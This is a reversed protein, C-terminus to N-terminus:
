YRKELRKSNTRDSIRPSMIYTNNSYEPHVTLDFRVLKEKFPYGLSTFLDLASVVFYGASHYTRFSYPTNKAVALVLCLNENEDYAFSVCDGRKIGLKEAVKDKIGLKGSSYIVCTLKVEKEPINNKIFTLAM